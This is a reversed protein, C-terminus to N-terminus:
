GRWTASPNRRFRDNEQTWFDDVGLANISWELTARRIDKACLLHYDDCTRAMEDLLRIFFHDSYRYLQLIIYNQTKTPCLPMFRMDIRRFTLPSLAGYTVANDVCTAVHSMVKREFNERWTSDALKNGLLHAAQRATITQHIRNLRERAWTHVLPHIAFSTGAVASKALSFSFLEQLANDFRADAARVKLVNDDSCWTIM